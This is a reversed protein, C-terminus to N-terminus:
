VAAPLLGLSVVPPFIPMGLSRSRISLEMRADFPMFGSKVIGQQGVVVLSGSGSASAQPSFSQTQTHEAGYTWSAFLIINFINQLKM